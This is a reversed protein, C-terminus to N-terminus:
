FNIGTDFFYYDADDADTGGNFELGHRSTFSGDEFGEGTFLHEWGVRIFWDDTIQYQGWVYTLWGLDRSSEETWFSLESWLPVRYRGLHVMRPLDFPEVVRQYAVMAQATWKESPRLDVGARYQYFNSTDQGVDYIWSYGRGSFLRNFSLSAEARDYPNLWDLFSIDRNDEGDFYALGAFVRPRGPADFRYGVELDGAFSDYKADDDGYDGIKFGAASAHADGFQYALELDYDWSGTQGFARLGVTHLHTVGYDDLGLANEMWEGYWPLNTDNISRADRVWLWYASIDVPELAKYTGYVGYFDADGDEEVSGAEHMKSAFADLAFNESEYLLRVADHSMSICATIMDNVLWGKGLRIPQRGIRLTFPSDLLDDIQIYAHLFEVDDHTRTASDRGTIYDSRFDSGWQDFSEIEVFTSVGGTFTARAGLRTRQEYYKLGHMDDDFDYRSATGFPGIPRDPLLELPIRVVAPGGCGFSLADSWYRGRIRLQGGVEINLMEAGTSAAVAWLVGLVCVWRGASGM